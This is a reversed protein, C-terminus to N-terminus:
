EDLDHKERPALMVRHFGHPFFSRWCDLVFMANLVSFFAGFAGLYLGVLFEKTSPTRGLSMMPVLLSLVLVIDNVFMGSLFASGLAKGRNRMTYHFALSMLFPTIFCSVIGSIMIIDIIM